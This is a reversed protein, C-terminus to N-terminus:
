ALYLAAPEEAYGDDTYDKFVLPYLKADISHRADGEIFLVPKRVGVLTM